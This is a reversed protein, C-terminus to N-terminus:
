KTPKEEKAGRCLALLSARHERNLTENEEKKCPMILTFKAEARAEHTLQRRNQMKCKANQMRCKRLRRRNGWRPFERFERFERLERLERAGEEMLNGSQLPLLYGTFASFKHASFDDLKCFCFFLGINRVTIHRIKTALRAIIPRLQNHLLHNAAILSLKSHHCVCRSSHFNKVLFCM